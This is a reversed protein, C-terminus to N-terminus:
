DDWEDRLKRIEDVPDCGAYAGTGKGFYYSLPRKPESVTEPVEVTVRVSKGAELGARLDSPLQDVPYHDVVIKKYEGM